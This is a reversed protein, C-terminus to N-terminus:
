DKPIEAYKRAYDDGGGAVRIIQGESAYKMGLECIAIRKVEELDVSSNIRNEYEDNDQRLAHLESEMRSVRKVSNTIDSQLNIYRILVVATLALAGVLFVVYGFNMQVAKERNKRATHNPKKKPAEELLEEFSPERVATGRQYEYADKRHPNQRGANRSEQRQGSRRVDYLVQDDRDADHRRQGSQRMDHQRFDDRRQGSPRRHGQMQQYQRGMQKECGEM